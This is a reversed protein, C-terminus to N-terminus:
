EDINDEENKKEDRVDGSSYILTEFNRYALAPNSQLNLYLFNYKKSTAQKYLKTFNREGGFNGAFEEAIKGVEKDNPNPGGIICFTANQRIVNPVGRFLQSAFLLLGINYHRFRSALFFIKSCAKIGLFDDLILAIFPRKEKAFSEQYAIINEIISDSYQDYCTEPYTNKLFRSTVDNNITNSIIYVIDFQEAYFNKNLLLNSILTSKGTCVPSCLYGLQGISIDPLHSHLPRKLKKQHKPPTVPLVTLDFNSDM